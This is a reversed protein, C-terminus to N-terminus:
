ENYEHTHRLATDMSTQHHVLHSQHEGGVVLVGQDLLMTNCLKLDDNRYLVYRISGDCM